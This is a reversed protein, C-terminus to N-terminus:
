TFFFIKVPDVYDDARRMSEQHSKEFVFPKVSTMTESRLDTNCLRM